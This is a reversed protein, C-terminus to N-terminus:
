THIAIPTRTWARWHAYWYRGAQQVGLDSPIAIAARSSSGLGEMVAPWAHRVLRVLQVTRM